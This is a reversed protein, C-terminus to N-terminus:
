GQGLGFEPYHKEIARAVKYWVLDAEAHGNIVEIRNAFQRALSLYGERVKTHFKLSLSEFRDGNEFEKESEHEKMKREHAKVPSIDLLITLSPETNLNAYQFGTRLVHLPVGRGWGQYAMPSDIARNCIVFWGKEVAPKINEEYNQAADAMFLFVEARDCITSGADLLLKRCEQGFDTGGPHRTVLHPLGKQKLREVVREVQTDKGCKDIGEFSILPM